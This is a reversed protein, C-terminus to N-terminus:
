QDYKNLGFTWWGSGKIIQIERHMFQVLDSSQNSLDAYDLFWLIVISKKGDVM